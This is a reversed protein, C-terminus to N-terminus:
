LLGARLYKAHLMFNYDEVLTIYVMVRLDFKARGQLDCAKSSQYIFV